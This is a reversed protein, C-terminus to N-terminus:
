FKSPSAFPRNPPTDPPGGFGRENGQNGPTYPQSDVVWQGCVGGREKEFGATVILESINYKVAAEYVDKGSVSPM